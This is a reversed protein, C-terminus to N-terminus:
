EEVGHKPGAQITGHLGHVYTVYRVYADVYRRGAEVSEERHERAERARRFWKQTERELEGALMETVPKLDGTELAKEAAAVDQPLPAAPKVGTFAMGEAERHLRVATEVFYSDALKAAEGGTRRVQRCQEFRERLEEERDRGVWVAIAGFRGQQLAERAAVAVPGSHTDCHARASRALLVLVGVAAGIALAMAIMTTSGRM